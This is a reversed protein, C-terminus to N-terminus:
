EEMRANTAGSPILRDCHFSHSFEYDEEDQDEDKDEDVDHDEHDYNFLVLTDFSSVLYGGVVSSGVLQCQANRKGVQM